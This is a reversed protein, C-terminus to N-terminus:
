ATSGAKSAMRDSWRNWLTRLTANTIDEAVDEVPGRRRRISEAALVRVINLWGAPLTTQQIRTIIEAASVKEDIMAATLAEIDPWIRDFEAPPLAVSERNFPLHMAPTVVPNQDTDSDYLHLSDSWHTYLGPQLGAWGAMVEQLMTFQVINHPLGRYADNSRMVQTWDLSAGRVKLMSVINCPIDKSRPVGDELPLDIRGDWIGLVIQRSDPNAALAAAARRLQDFGFQQRLRWGYAGHYTLGDGAYKPLQSNFYNVFASDNRGGVIWIVEALAFAVNMAERRSAVWRQRPDTIQLAVHLLEHTAGNRSPQAIGREIIAAAADRWVGDASNGEFSHIM